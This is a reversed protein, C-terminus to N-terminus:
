IETTFRSSTHPDMDSSSHINAPMNTEAEDQICFQLGVDVLLVSYRSNFSLLLKNFRFGTDFGRILDLDKEIGSWIQNHKTQLM